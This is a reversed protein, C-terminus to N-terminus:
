TSPSSEGSEGWRTDIRDAEAQALEQDVQGLANLALLAQIEADKMRQALDADRRRLDACEADSLAHRGHLAVLSPARRWLRFLVLTGFSQIAAAGLMLAAEDTEGLALRLLGLVIGIPIVIFGALYSTRTAARMAVPMRPSLIYSTVAFVVAIVTSIIAMLAGNEPELRVGRGSLHSAGAAIAAALQVAGFTIWWGGVTTLDDPDERKGRDVGLVIEAAISRGAAVAVRNSLRPSLHAVRDRVRALEAESV